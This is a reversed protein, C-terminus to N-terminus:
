RTVDKQLEELEVGCQGLREAISKIKQRYDNHADIAQLITERKAGNNPNLAEILHYGTNQGDNMLLRLETALEYVRDLM